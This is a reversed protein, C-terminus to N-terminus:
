RNTGDQSYSKTFEAERNPSSLNKGVPRGQAVFSSFYRDVVSSFDPSKCHCWSVHERGRMQTRLNRALM